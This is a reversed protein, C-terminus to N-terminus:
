ESEKEDLNKQKINNSIDKKSEEDNKFGLYEGVKNINNKVLIAIIDAIKVSVKYRRKLELQKDVILAHVDDQIPATKSM